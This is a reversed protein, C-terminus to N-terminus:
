IPVLLVVDVGDERCWALLPEADRRTAVGYYRPSLSGIRGADVLEELRHIPFYTDLDDMHTAARNWGLHGTYLRTPPPGTPAAYGMQLLEDPPAAQHSHAQAATTVLALRSQALPKVLPAFPVDEFHAWERPQRGAAEAQRRSRGIYSVFNGPPSDSVPNM